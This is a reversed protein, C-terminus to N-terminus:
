LSTKTGCTETLYYVCTSQRPRTYTSETLTIGAKPVVYGIIPKYVFNVEALILYQDALVKSSSDKGILGAPVIVTAGSTLPADGNSWQVKGKGGDNPDIYIQSIRATLNGTAYPTLIADGITFFNTFDTNTVKTYRSALDAMSQAIITVKRDAAVGMSIDILGFFMLIMLPLILAFEVAAIGRTDAAMQMWFRPLRNRGAVVKDMIGARM